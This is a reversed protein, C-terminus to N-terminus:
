EARSLAFLPRKSFGLIKIFVSRPVLSLSEELNLFFSVDSMCNAPLGVRVRQVRKTQIGFAGWVTENM